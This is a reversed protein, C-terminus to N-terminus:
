VLQECDHPTVVIFIVLWHRSLSDADFAVAM